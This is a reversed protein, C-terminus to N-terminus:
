VYGEVSLKNSIAEKFKSYPLVVKEHAVASANNIRVILDSVPDNVM